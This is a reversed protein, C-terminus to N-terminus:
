RTPLVTSGSISCRRLLSGHSQDPVRNRRRDASCCQDTSAPADYRCFARARIVRGPHDLVPFPRSVIRSRVREAPSRSAPRARGPRAPIPSWRNARPDGPPSASASASPPHPPATTPAAAAASTSTDAARDPRARDLDGAIHASPRPRPPALSRRDPRAAPTTTSDPRGTRAPTAAAAAPAPRHARGARPARPM